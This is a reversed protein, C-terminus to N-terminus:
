AFSVGANMQTTLQGGPITFFLRRVEEAVRRWDIYRDGQPDRKWVELMLNIVTFVNRCQVRESFKTFIGLVEARGREDAIYLGALFLPFMMQSENPTNLILRLYNLIRAALLRCQLDSAAARLVTSRLYLEASLQFTQFSVVLLSKDTGIPLPHSFLGVPTDVARLRTLIPECRALLEGLQADRSSSLPQNLLQSVQGALVAIEVLFQFTLQLSCADSVSFIVRTAGMYCDMELDSMGVGLIRRYLEMPFDPPATTTVSALVDHYVCNYALAQWTQSKRFDITELTKCLLRRIMPLRSAWATVDGKVIELGGVIMFTWMYEEKEDDTLNREIDLQDMQM